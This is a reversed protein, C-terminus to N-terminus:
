EADGGGDDEDDQQSLQTYVGSNDDSLGGQIVKVFKCFDTLAYGAREASRKANTVPDLFGFVGTGVDTYDTAKFPLVADRRDNEIDQHQSETDIRSNVDLILGELNSLSNPKLALFDSIKIDDMQKNFGKMKDLIRQQEVSLTEQVKKLIETLRQPDLKALIRCFELNSSTDGEIVESSMQRLKRVLIPKPSETLENIQTVINKDINHAELPLSALQDPSLKALTEYMQQTKDKIQMARLKVKTNATAIELNEPESDSQKNMTDELDSHKNKLFVLDELLKILTKLPDKKANYKERNLKVQTASIHNLVQAIRDRASFEDAPLKATAAWTTMFMASPQEDNLIYCVAGRVMASLMKLGHNAIKFKWKLCQRNAETKQQLVDILNL